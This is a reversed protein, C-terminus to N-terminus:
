DHDTDKKPDSLALRLEDENVRRGDEILGGLATFAITSTLKSPDGALDDVDGFAIRGLAKRLEAERALSATLSASLLDFDRHIKAATRLLAMPEASYEVVAMNVIFQDREEATTELRLLEDIPTDTM